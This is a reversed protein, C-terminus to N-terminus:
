EAVLAEIEIIHREAASGPLYAKVIRSVVYDEPLASLEDAPYIGKMALIRARQSSSSGATLHRTMNVFDSLSSFARSVITDVEDVKNFMEIRSNHVEVNKLGLELKAQFVFRTKKSNSDLLVFQKEPFCIALPIGPLGPGTGVDLIVNGTLSPALTLSDFIHRNLIGSADKVGSLNFAKNWKLLLVIYDLLQEQQTPALKLGLTDLGDQLQTQLEEKIMVANDTV